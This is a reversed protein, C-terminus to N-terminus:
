LTCYVPTTTPSAETHQFKLAASSYRRLANFFTEPSSLSDLRKIGKLEQGILDPHYLATHRVTTPSPEACQLKICFDIDQGTVTSDFFATPLRNHSVTALQKKERM